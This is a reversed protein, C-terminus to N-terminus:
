ALERASAVRAVPAVPPHAAIRGATRPGILRVPRRRTVPRAGRQAPVHRVSAMLTRGVESARLAHQGRAAFAVGAAASAIATLAGALVLTGQPGAAECLWGLLQGGLAGSLASTMSLAALVRGRMDVRTDLQVRTAVTTDILVACAAIPLLLAGFAWVGGVLGLVLELASAILGAGVLTRYGLHSRRAAALGGLVTGVAFVTSLLGYGSAGAHLPGNSMAAMTVQYNRGLSGLVAALGLAILVMPQRLLYRLGERVGGTGADAPTAVEHTRIVLLAGIVALFSVANGAFLPAPGMTAVAVGGLSMGIIRGASNSLSGLSLANGLAAPNVTSSTFRGMAPAEIANVLGGALSILYVPGIGLHGVAVAALGVALSAHALQTVILLRRGPIRDALAGAWSSLVLVPLAQLLLTFGMRTASGTSQLVYWNIALTQMWSGTTSVFGAGMWIRFNRERLAAFIGQV